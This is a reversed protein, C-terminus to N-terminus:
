GTVSIHNEVLTVGPASWAARAADMKEAWTRVSGTLMLTSGKVAVNIKGADVEASRRLASQIKDKVSTASIQPKITIMNVVFRVGHLNRVDREATYSQYHWDVDGTLTLRGETVTIKIRSAPVNVDWALANLAATAIDHDTRQDVGPLRVSIENAVGQIGAVRLAAREAAFRESYKAVHGSLTVVGDSASVGIDAANISPDFELEDIVAQRLDLAATKM